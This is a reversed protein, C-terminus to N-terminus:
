IAAQAVHDKVIKKKGFAKVQPTATWVAYGNTIVGKSVGKVGSSTIAIAANLNQIKAQAM